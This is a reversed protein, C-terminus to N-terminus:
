LDIDRGTTWEREFKIDAGVLPSNRLARWLVGRSPEAKPEPALDRKLEQRLDVDGAALRRAIERILPKDAVPARVEFRDIGAERMRKRHNEVAKRQAAQSM